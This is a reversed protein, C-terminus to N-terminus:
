AVSELNTQLSPMCFKVENRREQERLDERDGKLSERFPYNLGSEVAGQNADEGDESHKQRSENVNHTFHACSSDGGDSSGAAIIFSM